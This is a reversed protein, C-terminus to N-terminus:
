YPYRGANKGPIDKATLVCHVGPLALARSPDIKKIRAPVAPPRIVKGILEGPLRLDDGYITEGVAKALADEKVPSNGVHTMQPM